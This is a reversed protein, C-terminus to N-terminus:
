AAHQEITKHLLCNHCWRQWVTLDNLSVVVYLPTWLGAQTLHVGGKVNYTVPVVLYIPQNNNYSMTMTWDQGEVPIVATTLAGQLAFTYPDRASDTNGISVTATRTGDGRPLFRVTFTTSGGAAVPTAPQDTVSFEAAHTGTVTVPTANTLELAATGSNTITFTREVPFFITTAGFDTGAAATPVTENWAIEVGNTGLVAMEPVDSEPSVVLRVEGDGAQVSYLKGFPMDGLTLGNDTLAGSYTMLVYTGNQFGSLATANLVGDLTLDGTVIVKDSANTAALEFANTSSGSLVLSGLTLTGVSGGPAVIGGNEVTVAGNITGTGGLAAGSKVTVTSAAALAGSVRLTGGSVVTAGSYDNDTALVVNTGNGTFTMNGGGTLKSYINVLRGVDDKDSSSITAGTGALTTTVNNGATASGLTLTNDYPSLTGGSFNFTQVNASAGETLSNLRLSGGSLTLTGTGGATHGLVVSRLSAQATGSITMAGTGVQGIYTHGTGVLGVATLTGASITYTGISGSVAAIILVPTYTTQQRRGLTVDGGTQTFTATGDRGVILFGSRQHPLNISGGSMEYSATTAGSYGAMYIAGESSTVDGSEQVVKGHAYTAAATSHSGINFQGSLTLNGAITLQSLPSANADGVYIVAVADGVASTVSHGDTIFATDGAVPYLSEQGWTAPTRWDGTAVSTYNGAKVTLPLVALLLIAFSLSVRMTPAQIKM